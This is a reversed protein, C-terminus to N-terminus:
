FELRLKGLREVTAAMLADEEAEEKALYTASFRLFAGADDWLDPHRQTVWQTLMLRTGAPIRYGDLSFDERPIRGQVWGAPYLRMGLRETLVIFAVVVLGTLAGIVLALVLFVQSERQRLRPFRHLLPTPWPKPSVPVGM